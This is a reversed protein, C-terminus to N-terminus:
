LAVDEEASLEADCVARNSFSYELVINGLEDDQAQAVLVISKLGEPLTSSAESSWTARLYRENKLLGMMWDKPENWISGVALGDAVKCPGYTGELKTKLEHFASRLELGYVSTRVKSGNAKIWGLGAVPAVKVVYLEFASHPKPPVVVYKGRAVENLDTGIEALAMGQRLGFPLAMGPRSQLQEPSAQQLTVTGKEDTPATVKKDTSATQIGPPPPPPRPADTRPFLAALPKWETMGEHWVFADYDIEGSALWTRLDAETYPGYREGDQSIWHETM